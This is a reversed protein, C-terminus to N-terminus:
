KKKIINRRIFMKMSVVLVVPALKVQGSLWQVEIKAQILAFNKGARVMPDYNDMSFFM